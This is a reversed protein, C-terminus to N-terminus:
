NEIQHQPKKDPMLLSSESSFINCNDLVFLSIKKDGRCMFDPLRVCVILRCFRLTFCFIFLHTSPFLSLM